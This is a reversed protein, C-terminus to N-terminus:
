DVLPSHEWRLRRIGLKMMRRIMAAKTPLRVQTDHELRFKMYGDYHVNTAYVAEGITPEAYVPRRAMELGLRLLYRAAQSETTAYWKVINQIVNYTEEDVYIQGGYGGNKPYRVQEMDRSCLLGQNMNDKIEELEMTSFDAHRELLELQKKQNLM